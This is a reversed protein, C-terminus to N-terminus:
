FKCFTSNHCFLFIIFVLLFASNKTSRLNKSIPEFFSGFFAIPLFCHSFTHFGFIKFNAYNNLALKLPVPSLMFNETKIGKIKLV